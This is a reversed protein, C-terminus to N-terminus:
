LYSLWWHHKNAAKHLEFWRCAPYLAVVVGIWIVYTGSLSVGFGEMGDALGIWSTFIMKHWDYGQAVALGTGVLHIFFIHIIYYFFPVKGYTSLWDM